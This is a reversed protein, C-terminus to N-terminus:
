QGQVEGVRIHRRMVATGSIRFGMPVAVKALRIPRAALTISEKATMAKHPALLRVSSNKKIKAMPNNKKPTRDLAIVVAM